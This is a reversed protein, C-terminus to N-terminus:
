TYVEGWGQLKKTIVQKYKKVLKFFLGLQRSTVKERVDMGTSQTCHTPPLDVGTTRLSSCPDSNGPPNTLVCM